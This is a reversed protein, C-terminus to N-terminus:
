VRASTAQTDARAAALDKQSWTWHCDECYFDKEFLESVMGVIYPTFFKRTFQPYEVRSSNCQPCRVANRLVHETKDLRQLLHRAHDWDKRDVAVHIGAVPEALFWFRQLRSEDHVAAHIGEQELRQRVPEAKERESFTAVTVPKM